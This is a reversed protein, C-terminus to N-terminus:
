QRNMCLLAAAPATLEQSISDAAEARAAETAVAIALEVPPM